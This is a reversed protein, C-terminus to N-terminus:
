RSKFDSIYELAFNQLLDGLTVRKHFWTNNFNDEMTSILSLYTSLLWKKDSDGLNLM